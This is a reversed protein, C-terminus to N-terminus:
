GGRVLDLARHGLVAPSRGDPVREAAYGAGDVVAVGAVHGAVVVVAPRLVDRHHPAEADVRVPEGDGPRADQGVTGARNVGGAQVEVVPEDVAQEVGADAGVGGEVVPVQRLRQLVAAP